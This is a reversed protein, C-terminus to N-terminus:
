VINYVYVICEQNSGLTLVSARQNTGGFALCSAFIVGDKDYTALTGTVPSPQRSNLSEFFVFYLHLTTTAHGFAFVMRVM